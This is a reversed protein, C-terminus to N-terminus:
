NTIPNVVHELPGLGGALKAGKTFYAIRGPADIESVVIADLVAM